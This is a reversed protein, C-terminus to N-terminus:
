CGNMHCGLVFGVVTFLFVRMSWGGFARIKKELNYVEPEDDQIVVVDEEEESNFAVSEDDESGEESDEVEYGIAKEKKKTDKLKRAEEQYRLAFRVKGLKEKILELSDKLTSANEDRLNSIYIKEEEHSAFSDKYKLYKDEGKLDEYFDLDVGYFANLKKCVKKLEDDLNKIKEKDMKNKEVIESSLDPVKPPGLESQNSITEEDYKKEQINEKKTYKMGFMSNASILLVFFLFIKYNKNM